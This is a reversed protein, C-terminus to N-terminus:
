GDSRRETTARNHRQGRTVDGGLGAADVAESGDRDTISAEIEVDGVGTPGM